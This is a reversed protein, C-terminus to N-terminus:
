LWNSVSMGPSVKGLRSNEERLGALAAYNKYSRISRFVSNDNSQQKQEYIDDHCEGCEEYGAYSMKQSAIEAEADGRYHGFDGFSDPVLM